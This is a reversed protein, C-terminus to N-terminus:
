RLAPLIPCFLASYPLVPVPSFLASFPDGGNVQVQVKERRTGVGGCIAIMVEVMPITGTGLISRLCKGRM